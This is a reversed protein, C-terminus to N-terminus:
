SQRFTVTNGNRDFWGKFGWNEWGGDSNNVVQGSSFVVVRFAPYGDASVKADYVVNQLNATYKHRYKIVLVNYRQGAEYFAGLVISKVYGERNEHRDVANTIIRNLQTTLKLTTNIAEVKVGKAASAAVSATTAPAAVATTAPLVLGTVAAAGILVATLQKRISRM